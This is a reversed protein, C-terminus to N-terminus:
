LDYIRFTKGLRTVTEEAVEARAAFEPWQRVAALVEAVVDRSQRINGDNHFSIDRSACDAKEGIKHGRKGVVGFWPGVHVGDENV